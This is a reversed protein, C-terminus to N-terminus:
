ACNHMPGYLMAVDSSAHPETDAPPKRLIQLARQVHLIDKPRALAMIDLLTAEKAERPLTEWVRAVEAAAEGFGLDLFPNDMVDLYGRELGLKLEIKRALTDGVPRHAKNSSIYQSLHSPSVGILAAFDAHTRARAALLQLNFRRIESIVM